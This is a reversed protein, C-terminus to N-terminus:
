KDSPKSSLHDLKEHLATLSSELQKLESEKQRNDLSNVLRHNIEATLTRGNVRAQEELQRRLDIEMRLSFAKLRHGYEDSMTM